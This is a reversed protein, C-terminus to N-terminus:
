FPVKIENKNVNDFMILYSNKDLYLIMVCFGSCDNTRDKHIGCKDTTYNFFIFSRM